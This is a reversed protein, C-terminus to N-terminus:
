IWLSEKGTEGRRGDALSAVEGMLVLGGINSDSWLGGKTGFYARAAQQGTVM